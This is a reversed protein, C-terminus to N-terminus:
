NKLLRIIKTEGDSVLSVFYIGPMLSAIDITQLLGANLVQTYVMEGMSNMIQINVEGTANNDTQINLADQAPNPYLTVNFISTKSFNLAVAKSFAITGDVDTQKLRYFQFGAVPKFDVLGYNNVVKSTKAGNITGISSWTQGDISKEITFSANNLESATSWKIEVSATLAKASFDIISVPLPTLFSTRANISAFTFATNMSIVGTSVVPRGGSSLSGVAAPVLTWNNTPPNLRALDLDNILTTSTPSSVVTQGYTTGSTNIFFGFNAAPKTSSRSVIWYESGSAGVLTNDFSTVPHKAGVYSIDIYHVGFDGNGPITSLTTGLSDKGNPDISAPAFYTGNGLPYINMNTSSNDLYVRINGNVHRSASANSINHNGSNDFALRGANSTVVDNASNFDLDDIIVEANSISLNGGNIILKKDSADLIGAGSSIITANGTITLDGDDKLIFSALNLTGGSLTISTTITRDANLLLTGGSINLIGTNAGLTLSGGSLNIRSVVSNITYTGATFNVIDGSNLSPTGSVWGNTYTYTAAFSTKAAFFTLLFISLIKISNKM